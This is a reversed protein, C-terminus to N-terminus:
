RTPIAQQADIWTTPDQVDAAVTISRAVKLLEEESFRASGKGGSTVQVSFPGLNVGAQVQLEDGQAKPEGVPTDMPPLVAARISLGPDGDTAGSLSVHAGMTNRDFTYMTGSAPQLGAPLYGVRFPVRLATTRDFRVARAIRLVETRADAPAPEGIVVVAWRDPAYEWAVGPVDPFGNCDCPLVSRYFGQKGNVDVPEGARAGAPNFAGKDFVHITHPRSTAVSDLVWATHDRGDLTHYAVRAGPIDDVALRFRWADGARNTGTQERTDTGFLDPVALSGAALAMTVVAVAAIGATRRRTTRRRRLRDVGALTGGVDPAERELAGFTARLDDETYSM